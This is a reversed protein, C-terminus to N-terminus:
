CGVPLAVPRIRLLARSLPRQALAHCASCREVFSDLAEAMSQQAANLRELPEVLRPSNEPATLGKWQPLASELFRSMNKNEDLFGQDTDAKLLRARVQLAEAFTPHGAVGAFRSASLFALFADDRVSSALSM